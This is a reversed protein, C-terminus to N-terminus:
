LGRFPCRSDYAPPKKGWALAKFSLDLVEGCLKNVEELAKKREEQTSSSLAMPDVGLAGRLKAEQGEFEPSLVPAREKILDRLISLGFEVEKPTLPRDLTDSFLPRGGLRSFLAPVTIDYRGALAAAAEALARDVEGHERIRRYFGEALAEATKVSIKETMAVVAPMGLERVLLQALGGLAGEARSSASECTALFTLRPLGHTVGLKRLREILISGSVRELPEKADGSGLFLNTDKEKSTPDLQGHCIMHLLTHPEQTLRECLADLTPPGVAGEVEALVDCPIEGLATKVSSAAAKVNFHDLQYDQLGKPSAVLVLARLDRRGIPPFLRDTLSPLYLSFPTRQNLALFDWTTDLPACLREWRWTRLDPAEVFLLVRLCDGSERLSQVFADRINEQFLAKGLVTGYDKPTPQGLPEAEEIKLLGEKRVPLFVGERSEEVVVPWSDGSKRQITIQFTNM